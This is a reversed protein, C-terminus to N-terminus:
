PSLGYISDLRPDYRSILQLQSIYDTHLFLFLHELLLPCM